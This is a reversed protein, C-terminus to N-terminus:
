DKSTLDKYPLLPDAFLQARNKADQNYIVLPPKQPISKVLLQILDGRAKYM